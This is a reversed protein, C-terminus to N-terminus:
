LNELYAHLHTSLGETVAAIEDLQDLSLALEVEGERLNAQVHEAHFTIRIRGVHDNTAVSWPNYVFATRAEDAHMTIHREPSERFHLDPKAYPM